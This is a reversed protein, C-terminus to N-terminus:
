PRVYITISHLVNNEYGGINWPAREPQTRGALDTARVTMRHAGGALTQQLSWRRWAYRGRDPGLQALTPRGDITVEVEGISAQGGWAWGAIAVAREVTEGNMPSLILSRVGITTVPREEGNELRFVYEKSQFHGRFPARLFAIRNIWKVSAMGYWGPVVLRM